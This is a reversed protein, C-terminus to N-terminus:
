EVIAVDDDSEVEIVEIVNGIAKGKNEPEVVPPEKPPPQVGSILNLRHVLEQVAGNDDCMLGVNQPGLPAMSIPYLRGDAKSYAWVPKGRMLLSRCDVVAAIMSFVQAYVLPKESLKKYHKDALSLTDPSCGGGLVHPMTKSAGWDEDEDVAFLIRQVSRWPAITCYASNQVLHDVETVFIYTRDCCEINVRMLRVTTPDRGELFREVTLCSWLPDIAGEPRRLISSWGHRKHPTNPVPVVEETVETEEFEEDAVVEEVDSDSDVDLSTVKVVTREGPTVSRPGTPASTVEVHTVETRKRTPAKRQVECDEVDVMKRKAGTQKFNVTPMNNNLKITLQLNKVDKMDKLRQEVAIVAANLKQGISLKEESSDESPVSSDGRSMVQTAPTIGSVVIPSSVGAKSMAIPGCRSPITNSPTPGSAVTTSMTSASVPTPSTIPGRPAMSQARPGRYSICPTKQILGQTRPGSYTIYSNIPRGRVTSVVTQGGTTASSAVLSETPITRLTSRKVIIRPIVSEKTAVSCTTPKSVVTCPVMQGKPFINSVTQGNVATISGTTESLTTSTGPANLGFNPALPGGACNTSIIPRTNISITTGYFCINPVTTRCDISASDSKEATPMQVLIPPLMMPVVTKTFTLADTTINSVTVPILTGVINKPISLFETSFPASTVINSNVLVDSILKASAVDKDGTPSTTIVGSINSTSTSNVSTPMNKVLPSLRPPAIVTAGNENQIAEQPIQNMMPTEQVKPSNPASAINFNSAVGGSISTIKVSAFPENGDIHDDTATVEGDLRPVTEGISKDVSVTSVPNQKSSEVSNNMSIQNSNVNLNDKKNSYKSKDENEKPPGLGFFKTTLNKQRIWEQYGPDNEPDTHAKEGTDSEKKQTVATETADAKKKRRAKSPVPKDEDNSIVKDSSEENYGTDITMDTDDDSDLDSSTNRDASNNGEKVEIKSGNSDKDKNDQTKSKKSSLKLHPAQAQMPKAGARRGLLLEALDGRLARQMAAVEEDRNLEEVLYVCCCTCDKLHAGSHLPLLQPPKTHGAKAALRRRADNVARHRRALCCYALKAGSRQQQAFSRSTDAINELFQFLEKQNPTSADEECDKTTANDRSKRKDRKDQKETSSGEATEEDMVDTTQRRGSLRPRPTPPAPPTPPTPPESALPPVQATPTRGNARRVQEIDPLQVRKPARRGGGGEECESESDDDTQRRKRKGSDESCGQTRKTATVRINEGFNFTVNDKPAEHKKERNLLNQIDNQDIENLDRLPIISFAFTRQRPTPENADNSEKQIVDECEFQIRNKLTEPKKKRKIDAICLEDESTDSNQVTNVDDAFLFRSLNTDKSKSKNMETKVKVTNENVIQSGVDEDEKFDSEKNSDEASDEESMKSSDQVGSTSPLPSAGRSIDGDSDSEFTIETQVKDPDLQELKSLIAIEQERKEKIRNIGIMKPENKITMKYSYEQKESETNMNNIRDKQTSDKSTYISKTEKDLMINLCKGQSTTESTPPVTNEPKNTEITNLSDEISDLFAPSEICTDDIQMDNDDDDDDENDLTEGTKTIDTIEKDKEAEVNKVSSSEKSGENVVIVEICKTTNDPDRDNKVAEDNMNKDAETEDNKDDDDPVDDEDELDVTEINQEILILDDETEIYNENLGQNSMPNDPPHKNGDAEAEGTDM